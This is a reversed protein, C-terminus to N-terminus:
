EHDIQEKKLQSDYIDRYLSSTNLLTDHTGEAAIMGNDIVVVRDANLITSIRQAVIFCTRHAMIGALAQQILSETKVDVASTSDDLILIAPDILVARAIAIRQKQGGSLNVGRQGVVSEYGKQLRVIFDHARAARAAAIVEDDSADPKGYRINDRITGSFLLANQMAIGINKRLAEISLHRVDIGDLTIRGKTADYFRPILNILSTKGSGTAGVVAVTEGQEAIFNINKLVPRHPTRGSDYSFSVNEFCLRGHPKLDIGPGFPDQIESRTEMVEDIRKASAAARSIRMLLIGVMMISMLAQTLYNVFAILQGLMMGSNNVKLGGFWIACVIGMNMVLMMFPRPLAGFKLANISQKTLDDNIKGFKTKEYVTRAFSKVLRIGTFNEGIVTNLRDLQEQVGTFIKITRNIVFILFIVIMPGLFFFIMALSSNTIFAMVVSGVLTMGGRIMIHISYFVAEQVQTVDNTLRVVLQGTELKDLNGFSLTQIKRFLARRIDAGMFTAAKVAFVAGGIGVGMGAVALAVMWIGTHIVVSVDSNAVGVDIINQVLMPQLLETIVEIVMLLPAAVVFLRYPLLFRIIRKFTSM